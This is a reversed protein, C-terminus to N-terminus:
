LFYFKLSYVIVNNFTIILDSLYERKSKRCVKSVSQINNFITQDMLLFDHFFYIEIQGLTISYRKKM